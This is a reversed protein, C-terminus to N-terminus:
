SELLTQVRALLDANTWTDRVEDYEANQWIVFSRRGSGRGEELFPGLDIDVRVYRERISEQIQDVRWENTVVREALVIETTVTAIENIAAPM